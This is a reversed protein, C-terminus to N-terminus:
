CQQFKKRVSAKQVKFSEVRNSNICTAYIPIFQINDICLKIYKLSQPHQPVQKICTSSPTKDRKIIYINIDISKLHQVWKCLLLFWYLVYLWLFVCMKHKKNM